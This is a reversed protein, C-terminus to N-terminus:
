PNIARTFRADSTIISNLYNLYETNKLQKHDITIHVPFSQRSTRMVKTKEVNMGLGCCIGMEILRDVVDQLVTEEKALLVLDDAYKVSSIAQGGIKFNGFGELAEKTGNDIDIIIIIIITIIIIIIIIIEKELKRVGQEEKTWDYQLV